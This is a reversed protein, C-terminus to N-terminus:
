NLADIRRLGMIITVVAPLAYVMFQYFFFESHVFVMAMTSVWMLIFVSVTKWDKFYVSAILLGVAALGPILIPIYFMSTISQGTFIMVQAVLDMRGMGTIAPALLLDPLMNKWITVQAICVVLATAAFGELVKVMAKQEINGILSVGCIVPVFLLLTIGKIMGIFFFLFGAIYPAYENKHLLCALAAFSLLVAWWEAQMVCFNCVTTFSFFIIWFTYKTHTVHAVYAAIVVLVLLAIVKAIISFNTHDSFPAFVEALKLIGYNILRNGIPKAEWALDIGQPFPYFKDAIHEVGMFIAVDNTFPCRVFDFSVIAAVATLVYDWFHPKM